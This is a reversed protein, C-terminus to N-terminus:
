KVVEDKLKIAEELPLKKSFKSELNKYDNSRTFFTVSSIDSLPISGNYRCEDNVDISDQWTLDDKSYVTEGNSKQWYDEGDEDIDPFIFEKFDHSPLLNAENVSVEMYVGINYKDDSMCELAFEKGSSKSIYISDEDLSNSNKTKNTNSYPQIAGDNCINIFAEFTTAHQFTQNSQKMLRKM